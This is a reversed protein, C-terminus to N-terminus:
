LTAQSRGNVRMPLTIYMVNASIAHYVHAEQTCVYLGWVHVKYCLM